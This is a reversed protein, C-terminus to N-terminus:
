GGAGKRAAKRATEFAAKKKPWFDLDQPEAADGAQQAHVYLGGTDKAINKLLEFDHNHLGM